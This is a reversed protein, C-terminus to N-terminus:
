CTEVLQEHCHSCYVTASEFPACEYSKKVFFDNLFKEGGEGEATKMGNESNVLGM